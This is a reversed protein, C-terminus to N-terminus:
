SFDDFCCQVVFSLSLMLFISIYQSVGWGSTRKDPVDIQALRVKSTAAGRSVALM